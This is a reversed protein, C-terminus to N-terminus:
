RGEFRSLSSLEVAWDRASRRGAWICFSGFVEKCKPRALRVKMGQTGLLVPLEDEMHRPERQGYSDRQSEDGIWKPVIGDAGARDRPEILRFNIGSETVKV